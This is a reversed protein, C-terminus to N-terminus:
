GKSKNERPYQEAFEAILKDFSEKSLIPRPRYSINEREAHRTSERKRPTSDASLRSGTKVAPKSM